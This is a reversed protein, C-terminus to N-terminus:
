AKSAQRAVKPPLVVQCISFVIKSSHICAEVIAGTPILAAADGVRCKAIYGNMELCDWPTICTWTEGGDISFNYRVEGFELSGNQLEYAVVDGRCTCKGNCTASRGVLVSSTNRIGFCEEMANLLSSPAEYPESLSPKLLSKRSLDYLQQATAEELLSRDYAVLSHRAAARTKLVRHKRELVWTSILM